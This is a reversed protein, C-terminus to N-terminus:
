DESWWSYNRSGLGTHTTVLPYIPTIFVEACSFKSLALEKLEEAEAPADAHNIAVHLKGNGSREKVIEFLKELAQGKTRCRTLPKHEGGTSINAELLATNTIQSNAWVSGKHARGGKALLSLDDSLLIYNVKKVLNNTVEVVESLSKGAAAARAAEIAILMQAGCVTYSDIVEVPTQSLEEEAMKKAQTATNHVMGFKSSYTISLIAEAKQSLERYAKLFDGVSVTSTTPMKDAEKWRPMQEYFWVLDVETEPYSKGDIIVHMPALRINFQDALEETM